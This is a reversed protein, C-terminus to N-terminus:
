RARLNELRDVWNRYWFNAAKLFHPKGGPHLFHTKLRTDAYATEARKDGVAMYAAKAGLYPAMVTGSGSFGMAHHLGRDEGVNPLHNFAFGTNGTWVHSLRVDKMEPWVSCMTEHQRKAAEALPIDRMAARGGFLIRKGDPSVRFYSHRARTEVMMRRGPALHGILNAPLEETAILFSPLPFVRRAYWNFPKSTYGNTCLIVKGARVKGQATNAVFGGGVRELGNVRANGTVPIGRKRVANLLGRHYKAPHIACHDPFVVGGFYRNTGVEQGLDGREVVHVDVGSRAVHGTLHKQAEFQKRTWALQIRGTVQLDCDISEQAILQKAWNLAPKAEAFVADAIEPSFRGALDEWGLRPHAGFMGGNRTSAAEGPVGADVVAVKAGCDHAAIAASLGSYGAGIVLIDCQDKLPDDEVSEELAEWWYPRGMEAEGTWNIM